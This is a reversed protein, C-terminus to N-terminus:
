TNFPQHHPQRTVKFNPALFFWLKSELKREALEQKGGGGGGVV